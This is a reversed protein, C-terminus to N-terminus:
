LRITDLGRLPEGHEGPATNAAIDITPHSLPAVVELEPV